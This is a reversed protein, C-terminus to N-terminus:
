QPAREFRTPIVQGRLSGGSLPLSLPSVHSKYSQDPKILAQRSSVGGYTRTTTIHLKPFTGRACYVQYFIFLIFFYFLLSALM